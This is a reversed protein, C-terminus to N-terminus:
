FIIAKLDESVKPLFLIWPSKEKFRIKQCIDERSIKRAYLDSTLSNIQDVLKGISESSRLEPYHSLLAIINGEASAPSIKEFIQKEFEPYKEGLYYSFSKTLSTCKEELLVIKKNEARLNEFRRIQGSYNSFESIVEIVFIFCGIVIFAIGTGGLSEKNNKDSLFFFLFGLGLCLLTLCLFFM